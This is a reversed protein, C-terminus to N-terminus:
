YFVRFLRCFAIPKKDVNVLLIRSTLIICKDYILPTFKSNFKLRRERLRKGESKGEKGGECVPTRENRGEREKTGEKVSYLYLLFV